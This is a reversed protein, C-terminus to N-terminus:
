RPHTPLRCVTLEWFVGCGTGDGRFRILRNTQNRNLRDITDHLRRKSDQGPHPPLPDDLHSPWGEEEFADLLLEQNAAPVKFRKVTRNGLCLERRDRRWGPLSGKSAVNTPSSAEESRLQLLHLPITAFGIGAETLVFCTRKTLVLKAAQRFSRHIKDASTVEMAHEIYGKCLLWRMDNCTLGTALLTEMDIAFDWVNCQISEAYLRAELLLRVAARMECLIGMGDTKACSPEIGAAHVSESVATPAKM